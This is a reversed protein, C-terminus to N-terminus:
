ASRTGPDDPLSQRRRKPRQDYGRNTEKEEEKAEGLSIAEGEVAVQCRQSLSYSERSWCSRLDISCILLFMPKSPEGTM